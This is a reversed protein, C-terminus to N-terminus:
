SSREERPLRWESPHWIGICFPPRGARSSGVAVHQVADLPLPLELRPGVAEGALRLEAGSSSISIRGPERTLSLEPELNPVRIMRQTGAGVRVRGGAGDAMLIVRQAGLCEEKGQLELVASQSAPDPCDFVLSLNDSLRFRDGPLLPREEDLLTENLYVREQGLPRLWWVSGARLSDRRRLEAHRAGVNAVFPLDAVGDNQHGLVLRQAALVLFQGVDDVSFVLPAMAQAQDGAGSQTLETM